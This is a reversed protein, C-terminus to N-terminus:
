MEKIKNEGSTRYWLWKRPCQNNDEILFITTKFTTVAMGDTMQTM